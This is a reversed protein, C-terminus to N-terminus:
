CTGAALGPRRGLLEFFGREIEQLQARLGLQVTGSRTKLICDGRPMAEDPEIVMGKAASKMSESWRNAEEASVRLVVDSSDAVQELAVRAAGALFAPDMTSERHLVREAIALSLKVVEQEVDSFYRQKEQEFQLLARTVAEREALVRQETSARAAELAERRGQERAAGLSAELDFLPMEPASEQENNPADAACSTSEEVNRFVLPEADFAPKKEHNSEAANVAMNM